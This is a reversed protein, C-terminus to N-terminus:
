LGFKEMRRYLSARTLGLDESAKSINGGHRKLTQAIVNKEIEDLNCTDLNPGHQDALAEDKKFLFDAADLQDGECLILAREIAHKLERINGPWTHAKLKVLAQSTLSRSGLKYKRTFVGIFFDVLMPLDDLRERLPPIDIEVTNIRYLLDERFKGERVLAPLNMNTACVLRIDVATTRTAGLRQIERTELVRLIKAQLHLPLNGIEDLFLTGGSAVEFRGPRAVRADTFAGKEHGFLESEFLSESISGMDVGIFVEQSRLSQRHIARAMMEKGTGNEGTILVNADTRAVKIVMQFLRQMVPTVGLMEEFGRQNDRLLQRNQESLREVKQRSESLDLAAFVTALLKENRWPKLVFDSAGAKVSRVALDVDGYATMMVVVTAPSFQRIQNLYHLGEDGSTLDRTYNMDLLVLDYFDKTLVTTMADPDTSTMVQTVHQKLLLSAALLVDRDDDVILVSGKRKDNM